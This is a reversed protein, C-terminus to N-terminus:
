TGTLSQIEIIARRTIKQGSNSTMQIVVVYRGATTSVVPILAKLEEDGLTPASVALGSSPTVSILQFSDAGEGSHSPVCFQMALVGDFGVIEYIINSATLADVSNFRWTKEADADQTYEVAKSKLVEFNGEGSAQGDGTSWWRYYWTGPADTDVNLSYRGTADQVVEADTGYIYTTLTRNPKRITVKVVDPDIHDGTDPDTFEGSVQVLDGLDYNHVIPM